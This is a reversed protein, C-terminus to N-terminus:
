FHFAVGISGDVFVDVTTEDRDLEYLPIAFLIENTVKFGFYLSVLSTLCWSFKAGVAINIGHSRGSPVREGNYRPSDSLDDEVEVNSYGLDAELIVGFSEESFLVVDNAWKVRVIYPWIASALGLEFEAGTSYYSNIRYEYGLNLLLDFPVIGGARPYTFDGMFGVSFNIMHPRRSIEYQFTQHAIIADLEKKKDGQYSFVEGNTELSETQQAFVATSHSLFVCGFLFFAFSLFGIGKRM